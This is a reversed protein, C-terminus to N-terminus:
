EWKNWELDLPDRWVAKGVELAAVVELSNDIALLTGLPVTRAEEETVDPGPGAFLEWHGEEWRVAETITEGRLASINTTATSSEAVAFQWPLHLWQWIPENEANWETSLDPVDLTTHEDDPVLQRANASQYRAHAALLMTEAWSSDVLRQTFRGLSPVEFSSCISQEHALQEAAYNVIAFVENSSYILAGALVLEFGIKQTLGVTYAFRPVPSEGSVLLIHFGYKSINSDIIEKMKM